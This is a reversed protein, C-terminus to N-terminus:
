LCEGAVDMPRPTNTEAVQPASPAFAVQEENTM